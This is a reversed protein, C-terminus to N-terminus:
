EVVRVGVSTTGTGQNIQLPVSLGLPVRSNVVANIQYLGIYGPTLGSFQVQLPIGGLTVVPTIITSSLPESPAPVGADVPPSTRGLGTAYIIITDGRHLPNSPTTLQSNLARVVTPTANSGARFVSPAAPSITLNFNDSVGGPTNLRLTTNGEVPFPLQANIQQSSVFLMPVAIGNVTLCSEGLATPLPMQSSAQNLPSLDTGFVSILGGPAIPQAFDAGNVVRDIRPTAVSADYDWPLVTFGSTTLAIIANRSNLPALTRTFVAGTTGLVPAEVTRTARIGNGSQLDVRQLVGASGADPATMRLGGLELFAFGSSLGTATEFQKMQVLSSNLLSNGVMYQDYSSAAYAGSLATADKRSATFTGASANYLMVNGNPQAALISSGNPSAILVTNLAIDNNYVGLSPLVTATGSALDVQSIQHKPGAVRSAVLITNAASAISRPYHGGPMRISRAQELTELDYVYIVQSNNSGVLLYRRDFTIAMQTPTNGTKLAAIQNYTKGDYVLLQNRDERLIFFRDRSPDALIDVLKGPVNIATGRQDPDKSNVLVRIAPPLNVARSSRIDITSAATGKNPFAGPDVSIRVRAPTVGSSPSIQIGPATSSLTFDSAGGSRDTILIEQSAVRRDCFSGKFVVDEQAVAIRPTQALSGVPLILVGSDSASYLTNNDSSLVSKGALNEPLQLRELVALNEADVVQLVPVSAAAAAPDPMQAYILGRSSDIAQTGVNFTGTPNPFQALLDFNRTQLAWGSTFLTGDANVSVARPGNPPSSTYLMADVRRTNVDYRFDLADTSGFIWQGDRSVAISAATISPPFTAAPQPLTKAAVGTITDLLQSSGRVPDFLLFEKTTAVFAKNDSGFAVGLPPNGLAFTQKNNTEINLLTLANSSPLPAAFNAYHAVLLYKGDPSVTVSSPQSAVNISRLVIGEALSVVEIRNATFNAVYLLGRGEDLALDSAHGGIVVAKGFTGAWATAAICASLALQLTKNKSLRFMSNM